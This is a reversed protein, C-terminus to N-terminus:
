KAEPAALKGRMYEWFQPWDVTELEFEKTCTHWALIEVAAHGYVLLDWLENRANGKREWYYSVTGRADTQKKRVEKTLEELQKDTIDIPANFHYRGQMGSVEEWNRRLVPALRDKYHDVTIKFGKTGQQTTFEDFERVRAHKAPKDRGLIPYVGAEYDGCFSVVTDNSYGADVLTLLIRYERGDDSTYVKDEILDTLAAWVSSGLETCEDFESAAELNFYDIVYCRADVTWGMVAVSLWTKQVDVTCTLFLIPSNCWEQAHKNPIQGFKYFSRRHWSVHRKTIRSGKEEYAKGLVNNYFQQLLAPDRVKNEEIDWAEMWDIALQSWPLMGVPSYFAPLHYSRIEPAVPKATPRWEAGYDPSFLREKDHEYHPHHCKKCLYRMSKPDFSGEEDNDWTFGYDFEGTDKNKIQWILFQMERCDPNQCRVFYKRKDGKNYQRTIKSSGLILPTSGRFIKRSNWWGHCRADTLKDPDGDKGVTDPHGDLEDKLMIAISYQRMKNANKAGFPVLNGGGDWSIRAKSKGTKRTNGDDLSKILHSFGSQNIMPLFNGEIRADALEKDATLYMMPMTKVQVMYYLVISELLTSYTIQVGKILNVERVPSRIDACNLIERMFPNVDFSLPGPMSSVAEPLYRHEENFEVPTVYVIHDTLEDVQELLWESGVREFM